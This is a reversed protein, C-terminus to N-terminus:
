KFKKYGSKKLKKVNAKNIKKSAGKVKITKKCGKFAKKAVKTLKAKVTLAKLKKCNAFAGAPISKINKGLAISSAKAGKLANKGLSTVKYTKGNIKATAPISLKAAKKGSKSLSVVSLTGAKKATAAKTVKYVLKGSTVKAGKKPDKKAAPAKTPAKTPAVSPKVTPQTSPKVTPQTSPKVTPQTSPTPLTGASADIDDQTIKDSKVNEGTQPDKYTGNALDYLPAKLGSVKFTIEISDEPTPVADVALPADAEENNQVAMFTGYPFYSDDLKRVLDVPKENVVKDDIKVTADTIKAEPYAEDDLDTGVALYNFADATSLDIGKISVTYEGDRNLLVDTVTVDEAKVEQGGATIYTASYETGLPKKYENRCDWGTTQYVVYAHIGKTAWLEEDVYAAADTAPGATPTPDVPDDKIIVPTYKVKVDSFKIVSEVVNGDKDTTITDKLDPVCVAFFEAFKAVANPAFSVTYTGDKDITADTCDKGGIDWHDEGAGGNFCLGAQVSSKGAKKLAAEVNSATFTVEVAYYSAGAMSAPYAWDGWTNGIQIRCGGGNYTWQDDTLNLAVDEGVTITDVVPTYEVKVDSFQIVSEVVNGDKDTTITDKLDPVCVAFFEAFKAVANPAFSVTYTGDKDITADTCDKGGIDWHDEGAGGNFCLGAQVSSKGAKKLAAEVNSAKFTVKVATYSAGAMSAPYAWDGWTNGIQIRCGGGNYTWQDATLDLTVDDGTVPIEKTAPATAEDDAKVSAFNVNGALGLVMAGTLVWSLLKKTQKRM